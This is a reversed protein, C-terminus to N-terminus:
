LILLKKKNFWNIFYYFAGIIFLLGYMRVEWPLTWLPANLANKYPANEFVHFLYIHSGFVLTTNKILFKYTESDSLYDITSLTTFLGGVIFVSFLVAIILAPYIRLFRNWAFAILNNRLLLSATVLFGSIIFFIDVAIDGLSFGIISKLPEYGERGFILVFSHSFLVMFAAAFRILNFNNNRGVTYESLLKM